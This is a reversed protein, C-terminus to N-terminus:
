LESHTDPPMVVRRLLSIIKVPISSPMRDLMFPLCIAPISTPAKIAKRPRNHNRCPVPIRRIRGISQTAFQSSITPPDGNQATTPAIAKMIPTITTTTLPLRISVGQLELRILNGLQLLLGENLFLPRLCTGDSNSVPLEELLAQEQNPSAFYTM